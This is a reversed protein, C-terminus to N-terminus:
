PKENVLLKAREVSVMVSEMVIIQRLFWQLYDNIQVLFVVSVGYLGATEITANYVGIMYGIILVIISFYSVYAGFGRSCNWYSLSARTLSNAAKTFDNLLSTRRGFIRVQVLGSIMEGFINFVPTRTRLDLQKSEIITQKCFIFFYVLFGELM